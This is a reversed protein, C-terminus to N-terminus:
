VQNVSSSGSSRRSPMPMPNKCKTRNHGIQGCRGCKKPQVDEGTSPIRELAPRGPPRSDCITPLVLRSHIHEPTDWKSQHRLPKIPEQYMVSLWERSFFNNCFRQSDGLQLYRCVAMVHGCPLQSLDWKRCSCSHDLLNVLGDKQGDRVQFLNSDVPFVTWAGAEKISQEVQLSAWHTLNTKMEAAVTRREHYWKQMTKRLFEAMITIPLRRAYKLVNNMSEAINTTMINYRNGPFHARAWKQFGIGQLYSYAGSSISRIQEMYGTFDSHRCSKAALWFLSLITDNKFKKKTNMSLHHCCVGHIASPFVTRIGKEISKHRDSIFVLDDVDGIAQRLQILFWSWSQDNESDGVRFALPYIQNNGDLCVASFLTGYYKGKMFTGDVAVVRRIHAQFGRICAGLSMFFYRFNNGSDTEIATVTGPNQVELEHCFLPFM